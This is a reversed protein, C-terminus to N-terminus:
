GFKGLSYIFSFKDFYIEEFVGDFMENKRALIISESIDKPCQVTIKKALTISEDVIIGERVYSFIPYFKIGSGDECRVIEIVRSKGEYGYENSVQLVDGLFFDTGYVFESTPDVESAFTQVVINKSLEELGKQNLQDILEEYSLPFGYPDVASVNQADLFMERRVIDQITHASPDTELAIQANGVGKEGAVLVATKLLRNSTIYESNKLNEFDPSFIVYPNNVQNYSRDIGSYLKFVYKGEDNLTMKFGINNSYCLDVISNYISNGWYQSSIIISLVIPDTSHEFIMNSFKRYNDAPNIVHMNLLTFIAYQIPEEDFFIPEWIIRRDLISELSRGKVVVKNGDVPDTKIHLDEIVMIHESEKISAYLGQTLISINYQTPVTLLEFDGAEFYRDTWILSEFVDIIGVNEFNVDLVMLEM